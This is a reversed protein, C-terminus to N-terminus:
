EPARARARSGSIWLWLDAFISEPNRAESPGPIVPPAFHFDGVILRGAEGGEVARVGIDAARHRPGIQRPEGLAAALIDAVDHQRAHGMDGEHTRRMRMRPDFVDRRRLRFLRRAHDRDDGAGLKRFHDRRPDAHEGMQFADLRRRLMGDRDLAGAPLALRHAGHDGLAAGLGLVSARQDADVILHEGGHRVRFGREVGLRRHDMGLKAVIEGELPNQVGAVGVLPKGFGIRDHFRREHEAAVGADGVLRAGDDGVPIRAFLAQGHILARLRRVHHLVQEGLM